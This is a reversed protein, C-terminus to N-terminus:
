LNGFIDMKQKRIDKITSVTIQFQKRIIRFLNNKILDYGDGTISDVELLGSAFGVVKCLVFKGSNKTVINILEGPYLILYLDFGESLLESYNIIKHNENQGWWVIVDFDYDKKSIKTYAMMPIQVFYLKDDDKKKYINIQVLEGNLAYGRTVDNKSIQVTTDLSHEVVKVRKVLNGNKLRPYQRKKNKIWEKLVCYIEKQTDNKDFLLELDELKKIDMVNKTVVNELKDNNEVDLNPEISKVSEILNGNKTRPYKNDNKLWEKLTLYIEKQSGDKDFLKELKDEKIDMVNKRTVAGLKGATEKKTVGFVTEEHLAGSTIRKKYFYPLKVGYYPKNINSLTGKLLDDDLCFIKYKLEDVFFDYPQPIFYKALSPNEKVKNDLVYDNLLTDRNLIEGNEDYIESFDTEQVLKNFSAITQQQSKTMTALLIADVAHHFHNNRNKISIQEKLGILLRNFISILEARYINNDEFFINIDKLEDFYMDHTKEYVLMNFEQKDSIIIRYLEDDETKSSVKLDYSIEENLENKLSIKISCKVRDKSFKYDLFLPNNNEDFKFKFRFQNDLKNEGKAFRSLNSSEYTHTLGNLNYYKRLYSTMQGKFTRVKNQHEDNLLNEFVKKAIVSIYSTANLSNNSFEDQNIEETLLLKNIKNNSIEKNALVLKKFSNWAGEDNKMWEYPTNEKKEQNCKKHVLVKNNYSNDWTRSFPLIHDVEYEHTLVDEKPIAGGCYLCIGKQEQWLRLKIIDDRSLNGSRRRNLENNVVDSGFETIILNKAEQNAFFNDKQSNKIEIRKNYSNAIDRATEIHVYAPEGHKEVLANYFKRLIVLIHKVNPSTIKTQFAEEIEHVTPFIGKFDINSKILSHDYGLQEMAKDYSNGALMLPILNQVIELSLNGSGNALIVNKNLDDKQNLKLILEKQELNFKTNFRPDEDILQKIKNDTRAYSLVTAVDDLFSIDNCYQPYDNARLQKKLENFSKFSSIEKKLQEKSVLVKVEEYQDDNLSISNEINNKKKYKKVEDKFEKKGVSPISKFIIENNNNEIVNLIDNYTIKSDKKVLIKQKYLKIIQEKNLNFIKYKNKGEEKILEYEENREIWTTNCLKQLCVFIEFSPTARSIRLNNDFQCRGFLESYDKIHYPSPIAPGESYDRQSEIIELYKEKFDNDIVKNEIQTDLVKTVENILDLREYGYNYNNTTNKIRDLNNDVKFKMIAESLFLEDENIIKQINGIADKMKGKEEKSAIKRNSKFGRNKAYNILIAVLEENSLKNSLGKIRTELINDFCQKKNKENFLNSLSEKTILGSKVVLSRIRRLKEQRRRIVRRSSRQKRRKENYNKGQEGDLAKTVIIGHDLIAYPNENDDISVCGWGISAVGLDLGLVYRSM